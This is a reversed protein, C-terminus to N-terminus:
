RRVSPAGDGVALNFVGEFGSGAMVEEAIKTVAIATLPTADSPKWIVTDGCVAAVTGLEVVV